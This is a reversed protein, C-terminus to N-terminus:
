LIWRGAQSPPGRTLQSLTEVKLAEMKLLLPGWGVGGRGQSKLAAKRYAENVLSLSM